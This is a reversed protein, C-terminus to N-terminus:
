GAPGQDDSPLFRAQLDNLFRMGRRTGRWGGNQDTEMLGELELKTLESRLDSIPLGTRQEFQREHFGATLRLANLMFEFRLQPGSITAEGDLRQGSASMYASPHRLKWRRKVTLGAGASHRTTLKGHAGAGAGLYDGFSWYNINHRCALQDRAYASVEYRQYGAAALRKACAIEADAVCDEDPLAPPRAHFLTNPEITLQYHSIHSPGASIAQELDAMAGAVDQGPLGYMLDLNFNSIGAADLEDLALWIDADSHIRGLAALQGPDFSQAGLSIRNVGASAFGAFRGREVTGPNAELTIEADSALMGHRDVTDIVRGIADASFLSPTGGGFFISDVTRGDARKLEGHLDDSLADLYRAEPLADGLAHSNFDCYPCKKVCWPLHVYLSLPLARALTM